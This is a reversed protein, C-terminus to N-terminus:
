KKPAAQRLCSPTETPVGNVTHHQIWVRNQQAASVGADGGSFSSLTRQERPTWISRKARDCTSSRIRALASGTQKTAGTGAHAVVRSIRWKNHVTVLVIYTRESHSTEPSLSIRHGGSRQHNYAGGGGGGGTAARALTGGGGGGGAPPAAAAALVRGPKGSDGGWEGACAGGGGGM